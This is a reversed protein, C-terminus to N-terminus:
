KENIYVNDGNQKHRVSGVFELMDLVTELPQNKIFVFNYRKQMKSRSNYIVMVGYVREIEAMIETLTANEFLYLGEHWATYFRSDVDAIVM